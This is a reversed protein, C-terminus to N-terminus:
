NPCGWFVTDLTCVCSSPYVLGFKQSCVLMFVDCSCVFLSFSVLPQLLGEQWLKWAILEERIFMIESVSIVSRVNWWNVCWLQSLCQEFAMCKRREKRRNLKQQVGGGKRKGKGKRGGGRRDCRRPTCLFVSKPFTSFFIVFSPSLPLLQSQILPSFISLRM